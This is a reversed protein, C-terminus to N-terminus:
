EPTYSIDISLSSITIARAATFNAVHFSLWEGAIGHIHWLKSHTEGNGAGTSNILFNALDPNIMKNNRFMRVRIQDNANSTTAITGVTIWLDGNIQLKVSDGAYTIGISDEKTLTIGTIKYFVNQTSGSTFSASDGHVSLHRYLYSVSGGFSVNKNSDIKMVNSSDSSRIDVIPKGGSTFSFRFSSTDLSQTLTNRNKNRDSNVLHFGNLNTSNSVISFKHKPSTTGIGLRKNTYDYYFDNLVNLNTHFRTTRSGYASNGYVSEFYMLSDWHALNDYSYSFVYRTKESNAVGATHMSYNEIRSTSGNYHTGSLNIYGSNQVPSGSTSITTNAILFGQSPYSAGLASTILYSTGSVNLAYSETAGNISLHNNNVNWKLNTSSSLGTPTWFAVWYNTGSGAVKTNLTTRINKSSDRLDQGSSLRPRIGLTDAYKAYKVTDSLNAITNQKGAILTIIRFFASGGYPLNSDLYVSDTGVTIKSYNSGQKIWFPDAISSFAIFLFPLISLIKKM